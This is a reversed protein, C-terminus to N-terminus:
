PNFCLDEIKEELHNKLHCHSVSLSEEIMSKHKLGYADVLGEIIIRPDDM